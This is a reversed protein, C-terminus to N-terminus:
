VKWTTKLQRDYIEQNVSKNKVKKRGLLTLGGFIGGAGVLGILWFLGALGGDTSEPNVKKFFAILDSVEAPTLEHGRYAEIMIPSPMSEAKEVMFQVTPAMAEGGYMTLDKALSGGGIVLPSNVNHCAICAVGGNSFPKTGEFLGAGNDVESGLSAVSLLFSFLVLRNIKM